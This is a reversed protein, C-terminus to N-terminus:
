EDLGDGEKITIRKRAIIDHSLLKGSIQADTKDGPSEVVTYSGDDLIIIEYEYVRPEKWNGM